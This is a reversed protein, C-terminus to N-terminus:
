ASCHALAVPSPLAWTVTWPKTAVTLRVAFGVVVPTPCGVVSVHLEVCAVDHVAEPPQDPVRALEPECTTFGPV